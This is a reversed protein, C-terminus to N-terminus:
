PMMNKYQEYGAIGQTGMQKYMDQMKSTMDQFQNRMNEPMFGFYKDLMEKYLGPNLLDKMSESNFTKEQISKFIPSMLENFRMYNENVNLMNKWADQATANELGKTWTGMNEKVMEYYQNFFKTYTENMDSFSNMNFPMEFKAKSFNEQVQNFMQNWTNMFNM